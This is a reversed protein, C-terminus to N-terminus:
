GSEVEIAHEPCQEVASTAAEAHETPVVDVIVESFGDATLRFVEPCTVVCAGHGACIDDDVRVRV